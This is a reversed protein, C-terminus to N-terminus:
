PLIQCHRHNEQEKSFMNLVELNFEADENLSTKYDQTRKIFYEPTLPNSLFTSQKFKKAPTKKFKNIQETNWNWVYENSVLYASLDVNIRDGKNVKLPELFPLFARGYVKAGAVEPSNLLKVGPVLESDFWLSIGHATSNKLVKFELKKSFNTQKIKLYDIKQWLIRDSILKKRKFNEGHISNLCIHKAEVLDFKYRNKDWTNVISEYQKPYNVISAYIKDSSPILTGNRKLFRKRADVLIEINNGLLPLIGRLDSIILDVKENLKVEDSPKNFFEIKESYGNKRASQIGLNIATNPEIAYVKKAGLKCALLSFIGTGAGLDLVVCDKNIFKKLPLSIPMWEGNIASCVAM